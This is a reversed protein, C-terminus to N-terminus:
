GGKALSQLKVGAEEHGSIILAHHQAPHTLFLFRHFPEPRSDAQAGVEDHGM